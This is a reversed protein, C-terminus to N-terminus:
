GKVAGITIGTIFYKQAFPYLLVIPGTAVITMALKFSEAPPSTIIMGSSRAMETAPQMSMLMNYLFFQLPYLDTDTIFLMANSWNNWYGLAYFLGISALAPKSLPMYIQAFIKFEGAGDIKASEGLSDPVSSMFSRMIIIYFVGLLSPIILSLLNNKLKLYKIMLIYWPVLGGNFLTTFYFYMAFANRYKFYPRQLAYATMSCMFLGTLTGTVTVLITVGYAKTVMQPIRFIVKYANLSFEKPWLSYGYLHISQELTFSGSLVFLFPLVCLIAIIGVVFYSIFNFFLKDRGESINVQTIM